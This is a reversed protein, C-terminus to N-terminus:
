PCARINRKENQREARVATVARAAAVSSTSAQLLAFKEEKGKVYLSALPKM